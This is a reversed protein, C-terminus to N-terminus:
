HHLIELILPDQIMQKEAMYEKRIFNWLPDKCRLRTCARLCEQVNEIEYYPKRQLISVHNWLDRATVYKLIHHHVLFRLAIILDLTLKSDYRANLTDIIERKKRCVDEQKYIEQVRTLMKCVKYFIQAYVHEFAHYQTDNKAFSRPTLGALHLYENDEPEIDVDYLTPRRDKLYIEYESNWSIDMTSFLHIVSQLGETHYLSWCHLAFIREIKMYCETAVFSNGPVFASIPLM